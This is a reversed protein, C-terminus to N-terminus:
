PLSILIKSLERIQPTPLSPYLPFLLCRRWLGAANPVEAAPCVIAAPVSTDAATDSHADGADRNAATEAQDSEVGYVDLISHAYAPRTEVGKKKAYAEVDKRGTEVILPLGYYVQEADGPQVLLRHRSQQVARHLVEAVEQRRVLRQPLEKLQTVGLAANLDALFVERSVAASAQNLAAAHKRTRGLVAAGGGTTLMDEEELSLIVYDATSGALADGLRAGCGKSIDLIVTDIQRAIDELLPVFGLSTDCVVGVPRFPREKKLADALTEPSVTGNRPDVDVWDFPIGASQIVEAYVRSLLPSLLLGEGDKLSLAGSLVQVARRLERFPLGGELDFFELLAHIFQESIQGPGLTDDVMTELVAQMDKRNIAPRFLPIKM